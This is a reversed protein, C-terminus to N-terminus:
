ANRAVLFSYITSGHEVQYSSLLSVSSSLLCYRVQVWSYPLQLLSSIGADLVVPQSLLFVNSARQSLKDKVTQISHSDCLHNM